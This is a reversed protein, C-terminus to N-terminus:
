LKVKARVSRLMYRYQEETGVIWNSSANKDNIKEKVLDDVSDEHVLYRCHVFDKQGLRCLRDEAQVDLNFDWEYGLFYCDSACTAHFSAGSKIVCLLVKNNSKYDLFGQWQNAFESPQLGGMLKFVKTGLGLEKILDELLPIAMKFPTYVVFCKGNELLDRGEAKLYDFAAGDEDIGLLRPTVLLQRCRLIATMANPAVVASDEDAYIFENMIEQHAKTQKKTMKLPIAQRQKGPLDKLVESKIRRLRYHDLLKRFGDIDKPNRQIEKGFPTEMVICYKNVFQWYNRFVNGDALHLPAYLDIVGQRVPTGTLLFSWRIRSYFSAVKAYTKNKHNLLGASSEHIEDCILGRIHFSGMEKLMGYTTVIFLHHPIEAVLKKRQAPTGSYVISSVGFWNRLEAQWVGLAKVPCLVLVHEEFTDAYVNMDQMKYLATFLTCVTKGLGMDDFNLNHTKNCMFKVGEQQYPRLQPWVEEKLVQSITRPEEPQPEPMGDDRCVDCIDSESDEPILCGCGKCEKMGKM